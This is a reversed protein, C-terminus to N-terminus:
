QLRIRVSVESTPTGCAGCETAGQALPTGCNMCYAPPREPSGCYHIEHANVARQKACWSCFVVNDTAAPPPTPQPSIAEGSSTPVTSLPTSVTPTPRPPPPPAGVTTYTAGSPATATPASWGRPKSVNRAVSVPWTSFAFIFFFVLNGLLALADLTELMPFMGLSVPMSITNGSVVVNRVDVVLLLSTLISLLFPVLPVLIWWQSYGAKSIIKAIAVFILIVIALWILPGLKGGVVFGVATAISEM